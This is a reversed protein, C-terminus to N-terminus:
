LNFTSRFWAFLDIHLHYANIIIFATYLFGILSNVWHIVVGTDTRLTLKDLPLIIAFQFAIFILFAGWQSTFLGLFLWFILFPMIANKGILRKYEQSYEKYQKDKNQKALDQFDKSNTYMEKPSIIWFLEYIMVVIGFLYFLHEM